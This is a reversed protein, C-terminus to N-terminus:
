ETSPSLSKKDAKIWFYISVIIILYIVINFIAHHDLIKGKTKDWFLALLIFRFINLIQIVIIGSLGFIVKEKTSKPYAIVFAIFFSMVGLGLCSYVLQIVGRGSVLLETDSTIATYGLLNVFFATTDLLLHRLGRIYNVYLDLFQVYHAGKSTLSFFAINGYYFLLFLSLFIFLFKVPSEKNFIPKM